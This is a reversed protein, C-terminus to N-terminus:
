ACDCKCSDHPAGYFLCKVPKSANTSLLGAATAVEKKPESRSKTKPVKEEKASLSFGQMIM